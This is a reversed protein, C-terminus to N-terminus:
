SRLWSCESRMQAFAALCWSAALQLLSPGRLSPSADRSTAATVSAIPSSSPYYKLPLVQTGM